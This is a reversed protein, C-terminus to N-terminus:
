PPPATKQFAEWRAKAEQAARHAEPSLDRVPFSTAGERLLPEAESRRGQAALCAGLLSAADAVRRQQVKAGAARYTDLAARLPIEAEAARGEALLVAGFNRNFGAVSISSMGKQDAIRLADTLLEEAERLRKQTLYFYGLINKSGAVEPHDPGLAKLRIALAEKGLKEAEAPQDRAAHLLALNNLSPVLDPDNPDLLRRRMALADRYFPEAGALDGQEYLVKGLNNLGVAVDLHDGPYLRRKLPLAVRYLKEAEAFERKSELLSALNNLGRLYDSDEEEGHERQIDLARRLLSEAAEHEGEKRLVTALNHLSEAAELSDRGFLEERQALAQQHLKRSEPYLGLRRYVRGLLDLFSARVDGPLDPDESLKQRGAELAERVTVTEGRSRSPDSLEFLEELFSATQEARIRERDARGYLVTATTAFGLILLLVAAATAVEWPNRRVFKGARYRLSDPKALVPFGDLYRRVDDGLQEVSGYRREPDEHLAKAVITGLEGGVKSIRRSPRGSGTSSPSTPATSPAEGTKRGGAHAPLEGSVLLHLLVGLSYVDSATTVAEGAVQEPSAYEPTLPRLGLRTEFPRAAPDLLKAIGFDLLKPTGGATVLINGPKLDRHVVLRQHAFQVAGCLTHFLKLRDRESLNHERCYADVPRGEVYELVLYSLGDPTTGGDLLRAINEHALGALIQREHKFRSLIEDTDMGRKVLKIAVQQRYEDDAREALYVAGMGGRGIERVVRYPGIRQGEPLGAPPDTAGDVGLRAVPEELFDEAESVEALYSEVLRLLDADGDCIRTVFATREEPPQDLASDLLHKVQQWREPTVQV